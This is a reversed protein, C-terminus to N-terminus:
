VHARGIQLHLPQAQGQGQEATERIELTQVIARLAFEPERIPALNVFFVGDLFGESMEAAVQLGLRTKGVGGPGTLTVLRTDEHGLLQRVAAVEQERGILPTPQVPLNNPHADLTKLPPFDAPLDAIVLQFLRQPGRLDKLRHEGLDRLSVGVPLEQEVLDRTTQSLLVQGGHGASMIRAARHVDLGIYGESTLTPEGTHLGMRMLVTTGQPWSHGALARQTDVAAMVADIAHAFVVFFADGQADVGHGSWQQFAARLLQRCEALVGAYRDGLQYLLRTSGEMDTFLLTVTGTPLNHLPSKKKGTETGQEPALVPTLRPSEAEQYAHELATAFDQVSAFRQEPEKAMARLVVEEIAPSLKPVQERLSPPSVSVHQVAVELFPGGFPPKGCLWEYVVVGLAYQDSAPQAKGRLQEPALYSTTGVLAQEMPETANSSLLHPALMVLGFDSLLVQDQPNLLMNEPKVDRHILGQDHTYQLASAVQKVYPIIVDLPLRTGRPHRERLTGHLAYEMVLFPLGDQLAFDLVRVIHPHSLRVLTQAEQLFVTQEEETLVTHRVKLAAQSKLYLHVGLYVSAQGGQGLLRLLRYNGLQQGVRDNM